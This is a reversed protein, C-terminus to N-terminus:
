YSRNTRSENRVKKLLNRSDQKTWGVSKAMSSCTNCLEEWEPKINSAISKGKLKLNSMKKYGRFIFDVKMM